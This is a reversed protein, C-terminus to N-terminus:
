LRCGSVQFIHYVLLYAFSWLTPTYQERTWGFIQVCFLLLLLHSVLMILTCGVAGGFEQEDKSWVEAARRQSYNGRLLKTTTVNEQLSKKVSHEATGVRKSAPTRSRVCPSGQEGGVKSMGVAKVVPLKAKNQQQASRPRGPM